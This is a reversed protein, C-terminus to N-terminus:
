CSEHNASYLACKGKGFLGLLCRCAKRSSAGMYGPVLRRANKAQRLLSVSHPANRQHPNGPAFTSDDQDSPSETVMESPNCYSTLTRGHELLIGTCVAVSDDHLAPHQCRGDRALLHKAVAPTPMLSLRTPHLGLVNKVAESYEITSWKCSGLQLLVASDACM